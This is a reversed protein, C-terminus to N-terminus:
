LKEKLILTKIIEKQHANAWALIDLMNSNNESSINHYEKWKMLSKGIAEGLEEPTCKLKKCMRIVKYEIWFILLHYKIFNWM